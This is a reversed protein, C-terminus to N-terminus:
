GEEIAMVNEPDVHVIKEQGLLSVRLRIRHKCVRVIVGPIHEVGCGVVFSRKRSYLWTVHDGPKM